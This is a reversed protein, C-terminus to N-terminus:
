LTVRRVMGYADIEYFKSQSVNICNDYFQHYIVPSEKELHDISVMPFSASLAHKFKVLDITSQAANEDKEVQRLYMKKFSEFILKKDSNTHYNRMLAIFVSLKSNDDHITKKVFDLLQKIESEPDSGGIQNM